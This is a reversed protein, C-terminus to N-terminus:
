PRLGPNRYRIWSLRGPQQAASVAANCQETFIMLRNFRGPHYGAQTLAAATIRAAASLRNCMTDASADVHVWRTM